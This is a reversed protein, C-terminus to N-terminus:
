WSWSARRRRRWGVYRAVSEVPGSLREPATRDIRARQRCGRSRGEREDPQGEVLHWGEARLDDLACRVSEVPQTRVDDDQHIHTWFRDGARTTQALVHVQCYEWDDTGRRSPRTGPAARTARGVM